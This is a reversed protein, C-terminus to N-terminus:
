QLFEGNTEKVLLDYEPQFQSPLSDAFFTAIPFTDVAAYLAEWDGETEANYRADDDDIIIKPIGNAAAAEAMLQLKCHKELLSSLYVCEDITNGLTLLGHNRLICTKNTPGLAAAINTGEDSALVIGGYSNYVSLNEYFVCADQQLIDIPRGFASWTKGYFSHCHAAAVVDPRAKHIASHIWYGATNIPLQAGESSVYGEPSVLVLDSKKIMSYHMGLPNMWYHDQLVPDRVTIHGSTGEAYGLKGWFRFAAALHCKIWERKEYKDDFKPVGSKGRKTGVGSALYRAELDLFIQMLRAKPLYAM